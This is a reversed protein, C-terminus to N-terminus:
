LSKRKCIGVGSIISAQINLGSAEPTPALVCIKINSYKVGINGAVAGKAKSRNIFAMLICLLSFVAMLNPVNLMSDESWINTKVEVPPMPRSAVTNELHKALGSAM